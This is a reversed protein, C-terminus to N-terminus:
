TTPMLRADLAAYREGVFRGNVCVPEGDFHVTSLQSGCDVHVAAPQSDGSVRFGSPLGGFGVQWQGYLRELELLSRGSRRSNPHLGFGVHNVAYVGPDDFGALFERLIGADAGGAIDTIVGNEITLHIPTDIVSLRKPPNAFSDLVLTGNLSAEIPCWTVQGPLMHLDGPGDLFGSNHLYSRKPDNTMTLDTGSPTTVTVTTAKSAADTLLEGLEAMAHVDTDGILRVVDELHLQLLALTRVGSAAVEAYQVTHAFHNVTLDFMVDAAKMAELVPRPPPIDPMEPSPYVIVAVAAGAEQSVDTFLNLLEPDSQSDGVVVVSDESTVRGMDIVAKSVAARAANM